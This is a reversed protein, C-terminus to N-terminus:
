AYALIKLECPSAGARGAGQGAPQNKRSDHYLVRNHSIHSFVGPFFASFKPNENADNKKNNDAYGKDSRAQGKDPPNAGIRNNGIGKIKIGTNGIRHPKRFADKGM